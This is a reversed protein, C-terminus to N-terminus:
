STQLKLLVLKSRAEFSHSLVLGRLVVKNFIPFRGFYTVLLKDNQAIEGAHFKFPINFLM